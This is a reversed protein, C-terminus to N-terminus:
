CNKANDESREDANGDHLGKQKASANEHGHAERVGIGEM